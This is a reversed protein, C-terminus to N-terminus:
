REGESTPPPTTPRASPWDPERREAFARAGEVFDASHRQLRALGWAHEEADERPRGLSAWLAQKSRAVAEPSNRAVEEALRLAVDLVEGRACVEDVLGLQHARAASLRYSRGWLTMRLVSGLPLRHTLGVNEVAGVMGVSTHTDMLEVHEGAVIIDADAVFHLGGGAVLGNLACIVPKWVGVYHPSWGIAERVPGDGAVTRGTEAVNQVDVGTCFHRDGAGTVIVARVTPDAAVDNWIAVVGDRMAATLANAREPRALTMVATVGRAHTIREYRIGDLRVGGVEFMEDAGTSMGDM